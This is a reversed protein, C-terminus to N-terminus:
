TRDKFIVFKGSIRMVLRGASMEFSSYWWRITM